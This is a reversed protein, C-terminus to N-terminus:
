FTDAGEAANGSAQPRADFITVGALIAPILFGGTLGLMEVECTDGKNRGTCWGPQANQAFLQMTKMVSQREEPTLGPIQQLGMSLFGTYMRMEAAMDSAGVLWADAGAKEVALKGVPTDFWGGPAASMWTAAFITDTTVLWHGPARVLTLGIPMAGLPMMAMAGEAPMEQQARKLMLGMVEDLGKSRPLALAITPFPAAQMLALVATGKIGSVLEAVSCTLGQSKLTADLDKEVQEASIPPTQSDGLQKFAAPREKSWWAAGDVGLAIASLTNAPLRALVAKDAPATFASTEPIVMRTALGATVLDMTVEVTGAMKRMHALMPTWTAREAAPIAKDVFAVCDAPMWRLTLDHAAAIPTVPKQWDVRDTNTLVYQSAFRLTRVAVAHKGSIDIYAEEAGPVDIKKVKGKTVDRAMDKAAIQAFLEGLDFAARFGPQIETGAKGRMEGQFALDFFRLRTFLDLPNIGAEKLLEMFGNEAGKKDQRRKGTEAAITAAWKAKILAFEPSNLVKGYISAHFHGASKVGDPVSATLWPGAEGAFAAVALLTISAARITRM